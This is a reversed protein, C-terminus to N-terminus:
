NLIKNKKETNRGRSAILSASRNDVLQVNWFRHDGSAEHNRELLNWQHHALNRM